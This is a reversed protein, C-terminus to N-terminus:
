SNADISSNKRFALTFIDLGAWTKWRASAKRKKNHENLISKIHWPRKITSLVTQFISPPSYDIRGQSWPRFVYKALRTESYKLTELLKVLTPPSFYWRHDLQWAWWQREALVRQISQYNGTEIILWGNPLLREWIKHLFVEPEPIHEIVDWLTICMFKENYNLDDTTGNILSLNVSKIPNADASIAPDIGTVKWGLDAAEKVFTGDGCGIDLLTLPQINLESLFKLQLKAIEIRREKDFYSSKQEKRYALEFYSKSQETTRALPWQWAFECKMCERIAVTMGEIDSDHAPAVFNRIELNGCLPCGTSDPTMPLLEKAM